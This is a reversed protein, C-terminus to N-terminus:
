RQQQDYLDKMDRNESSDDQQLYDYGFVYEVEM